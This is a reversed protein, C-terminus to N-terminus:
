PQFDLELKHQNSLHAELTELLGRDSHIACASPDRFCVCQVGLMAEIQRASPDQHRNAPQNTSASAARRAWREVTVGFNSHKHHRM